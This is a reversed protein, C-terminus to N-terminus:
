EEAAADGVRPVCALSLDCETCDASTVPTCAARAGCDADTMCARLCQFPADGPAGCIQGGGCEASSTCKTRACGAFLVLCALLLRV